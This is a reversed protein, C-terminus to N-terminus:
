TQWTFQGKVAIIGEAKAHEIEAPGPWGLGISWAAEETDVDSGTVIRGDPFVLAWMEMRYAEFPLRPQGIVFDIVEPMSKTETVRSRAKRVSIGDDRCAVRYSEGDISAKVIGHARPRKPKAKSAKEEAAFVEVLPKGEPM